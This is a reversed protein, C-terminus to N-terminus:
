PSLSGDGSIRDHFSHLTGRTKDTDKPRDEYDLPHELVEILTGKAKNVSHIIRGGWLVTNGKYKEPHGLVETLNLGPTVEKALEPPVVTQCGAGLILILLM